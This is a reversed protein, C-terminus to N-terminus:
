EQSPLFGSFETGTSQIDGERALRSFCEAGEIIFTLM